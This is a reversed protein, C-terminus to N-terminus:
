NISDSAKEYSTILNLRILKRTWALWDRKGLDQEFSLLDSSSKQCIQTSPIIYKTNAALIKCQTNCARELHYCYFFAEHLSEGCTIIGHNRMFLINYDRLDKVMSVSNTNIDLILSNYDHYGLKKYFHLAWQSIPLLGCAMASVAVTDTTHLHYIANVDKRHKYIQGHSFFATNNYQYEKGSLVNGDLDVELITDATVEEFLYGFPYIYFSNIKESRVTIHTYTSDDLNLMACIKYAKELEFRLNM